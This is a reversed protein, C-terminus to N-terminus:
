RKKTDDSKKASPSLKEVIKDNWIGYTTCFSVVGTLSAKGFGFWSLIRHFLTVYKSIDKAKCCQLHQGKDDRTVVLRWKDGKKPIQGSNTQKEVEKWYNNFETQSKDYNTPSLFEM